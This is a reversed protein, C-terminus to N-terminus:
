CLQFRFGSNGRANVLAAAEWLYPRHLSAWLGKVQLPSLILGDAEHAAWLRTALANPLIDSSGPGPGAM